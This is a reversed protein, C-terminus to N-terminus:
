AEGGAPAEIKAVPESTDKRQEAATEKVEQGALPDSDKGEVKPEDVKSAALSKTSESKVAEKVEPQALVESDKGEAKTSETTIKTEEAKVDAPLTSSTGTLGQLGKVLDGADDGDLGLEAVLDALEDETVRVGQLGYGELETSIDFEGQKKNVPIQTGKGKLPSPSQALVKSRLHEPTMQLPSAAGPVGIVQAPLQPRDEDEM